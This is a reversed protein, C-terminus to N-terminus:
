ALSFLISYKIRKYNSAEGLWGDLCTKFVFSISSLDSWKGKNMKKKKEERRGMGGEMM